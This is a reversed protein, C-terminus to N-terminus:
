RKQAPKRAPTAPAATERRKKEAEALLEQRKAEAQEEPVLLYGQKAMCRNAVENAAEEREVNALLGRLGPDDIARLSVKFKERENVCTTSAVEFQETLVPDGAGRQGDSRIWLTKPQQTACAATVLTLLCAGAIRM